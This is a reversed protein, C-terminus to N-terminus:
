FLHVISKPILQEEPCLKADPQFATVEKKGAQLGCRNRTPKNIIADSVQVATMAPLLGSDPDSSDSTRASM